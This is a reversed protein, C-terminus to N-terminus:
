SRLLCLVGWWMVMCCSVQATAVGILVVLLVVGLRAFFPLALQLCLILHSFPPLFYGLQVFRVLLVFYVM